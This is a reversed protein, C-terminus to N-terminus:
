ESGTTAALSEQVCAQILCISAYLYCHLHQPAGALGIGLSSSQYRMTQGTGHCATCDVPQSSASLGSGSCDPCQLRVSVQFVRETGLAAEMFTLGLM